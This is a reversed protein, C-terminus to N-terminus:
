QQYYGCMCLFQSDEDSKYGLEEAYGMGDRFLLDKVSYDQVFTKLEENLPYCGDENVHERYTVRIFEDYDKGLVNSIRVMTNGFSTDALVPLSGFLCVFIADGLSGDENLYYYYGKYFKNGSGDTYDRDCLAVKKSDLLMDEGPRDACFTFTGTAPREPRPKDFDEQAVMVKIGDGEDPIEDRKLLFDIQLGVQGDPNVKTYLDKDKGTGHIIFMCDGGKEDEHFIAEWYFNKTYTGEAGGDDLTHSFFILNPNVLNGNYVDLKPNILDATTDVLSTLKYWGERVPTFSIKIKQEPSKLTVRFAAWPFRANLDDKPTVLKIDGWDTGADGYYSRKIKYIMVEVKREKSTATQANPDYTYDPPVNLLTVSYSGDLKATAVGKSSVNAVTVAGNELNKWQVKIDTVNEYLAQDFAVGNFRLAVTYANPDVEDPKDPDVPVVPVDSGSSTGGKSPAVYTGCGGLLMAFVCFVVAFLLTKLKKLRTKKM